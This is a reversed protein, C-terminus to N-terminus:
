SMQILGQQRQSGGTRGGGPESPAPLPRAAVNRSPDDPDVLIWLADGPAPPEVDDVYGEALREGVHAEYRARVVPRRNQRAGTHEHRVVQGLVARGHRYVGRQRGRARLLMVFPVLLCLAVGAPLFVWAGFYSARHGQVRSRSPAEPDYEIQVPQRRRARALEAGDTTTFSSERTEGTGDRYRIRVRMLSKGNVRSSTGEVAYPTGTAPKGRRDLIWDDWIPGGVVTFVGATLLAIGFWPGVFMMAFKTM